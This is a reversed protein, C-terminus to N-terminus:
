RTDQYICIEWVIWFKTTVFELNNRLKEDNVISNDKVVIANDLSGGKALGM